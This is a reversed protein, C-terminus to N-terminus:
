LGGAWYSGSGEVQQVFYQEHAVCLDPDFSAIIFSAPYPIAQTDPTEPSFPFSPLSFPLSSKEGEGEGM